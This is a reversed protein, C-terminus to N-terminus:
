LQSSPKYLTNAHESRQEDQLEHPITFISEANRGRYNKRSYNCFSPSFILFISSIKPLLIVANEM